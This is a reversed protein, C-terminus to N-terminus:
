GDRRRLMCRRMRRACCYANFGVGAGVRGAEVRRGFGLHVTIAGDPHGPVMLVPAIVKRGNSSM